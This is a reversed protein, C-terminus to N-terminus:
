RFKPSKDPYRDVLAAVTFPRARCLDSFLGRRLLLLLIRRRICTLLWLIDLQFPEGGLEVNGKSLLREDSGGTVDEALPRGKGLVLREACVYVCACAYVCM